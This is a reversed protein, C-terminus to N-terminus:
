LFLISINKESILCDASLFLVYETNCQKIAQNGAITVGCNKKNLIYKYIQFKKEIKKKLYINGANDVIIIKFNKINELCDFVLDLKEKYLVITITIKNYLNDNM